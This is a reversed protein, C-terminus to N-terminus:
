LTKRIVEVLRDLILKDDLYLLISMTADMLINELPLESLIELVAIM